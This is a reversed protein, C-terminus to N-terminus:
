TFTAPLTMQPRTTSLATSAICSLISSIALTNWCSTAIPSNGAIFPHARQHEPSERLDRSPIPAAARTMRILRPKQRAPRGVNPLCHTTRLLM